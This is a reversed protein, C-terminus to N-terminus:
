AAVGTACDACVGRVAFDMSMGQYGLAKLADLATQAARELDNANAQLAGSLPSDRHCSQCEFHPIAHVGVPMAQYRRTRSADVRCLLLGVQTLRDILRYLTVRDLEGSEDALAVQLQSHTYSTDPHALLWGLVQRAAHTRRLGHATLLENIPDTAVPSPTM